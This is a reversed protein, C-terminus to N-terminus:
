TMRTIVPHVTSVDQRMWGDEDLGVLIGFVRESEWEDSEGVAVKYKMTAAVLPHLKPINRYEPPADPTHIISLQDVIVSFPAGEYREGKTIVKGTRGNIVNEAKRFENVMDESPTGNVYTRRVQCATVMAPLTGMNIWRPHFFMVSAGSNPGSSGPMVNELHYGDFVMIPRNAARAIKNADVMANTAIRAQDAAVRTADLTGKIWYLGVFSVIVSAFGAFAAILAGWAARQQATLDQETYATDESAEVYGVVCEFVAKPEAGFCAREAKQKATESYAHPNNQRRESQEGNLLGVVYILAILGLIVLLCLGAATVAEIRKGGGSDSM